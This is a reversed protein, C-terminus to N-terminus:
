DMRAYIERNHSRSIDIDDMIAYQQSTTKKSQYINPKINKEFAWQLMKYADGSGPSRGLNEKIDDKDIIQLLPKDPIYEDAQLDEILEIDGANIAAKGALIRDKTVFAAESRQNKYIPKKINHDGQKVEIVKESPASGHFKIINIGQLYDDSLNKLEQYWGIGLGDCDVVIWSGNIAKCMEVARIAGASPPMNAKVFKDLVEGGSGSMIVNDDVGEGAPDISVGRNDSYRALSGQKSKGQNIIADGFIACTGSDPVQGLVRGIWRPDDEGWRKRKDEVWEYSCLGPIVTRREKYNPNELCSFNFVINDTKNKLGAAFRGKARTPNGLYIILCVGSTSIADIQDFINSEVSQAETVIVCINPSHFGQFKGGGGDKTEGTEKTTFGIMYWDRDIELRPEVYIRGGLDIKRKNWHATTEKWMIQKVQRDTPGTLVVESPMHTQLFWLGIGGSIYDKGLAHGSAIYIPKHERIARPCAELLERQLDWIQEVGLM